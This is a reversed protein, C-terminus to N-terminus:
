EKHLKARVLTRIVGREKGSLGVFWIGPLLFATSGICNVVLHLFGKAGAFFSGDWAAAAGAIVAAPLLVERVYAPFSLFPCLRKLIIMRGVGMVSTMGISILFPLVPEPWLTLALYALPFISLSMGGVILQYERIKGTAQVGTALPNTLSDILAETLVLITFLSTYKPAEGLWLGLIYEVNWAFPLILLLLLFFSMKSASHLLTQFAAQEGKAYNKIIQPEVATMFNQAFSAIVGHIQFAIGRAANVVPGFFLNMIVNIGPNRLLTALAGILNWGCFSFIEGYIKKDRCIHFRVYSYKRRCYLVYVGDVALSVACLLAAYTVLKDADSLLLLYVVLLKAIGELVAVLSYISMNEEAFLVAQFPTTMLGAFWTVLSLEYVAVVALERGAPIQLKETVFWLGVSEALLLLVAGTGANLALNASLVQRLQDWEQRALCVAFFRQAMHALTGAFFGMVSVFGGVVGYLGYDAAGLTQLVVRVTYLSIGTLFIMRFYLAATNKLVRQANTAATM